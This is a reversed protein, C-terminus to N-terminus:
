PTGRPASNTEAEEGVALTVATSAISIPAPAAPNRNGSGDVAGSDRRAAQLVGRSEKASAANQTAASALRAARAFATAAEATRGRLREVVGLNHWALAEDGALRFAALAGDADGTMALALGLNNVVVGEGPALDVALSLTQAAEAYREQLILNYGLDNM